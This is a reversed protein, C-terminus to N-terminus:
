MLTTPRVRSASPAVIPCVEASNDAGGGLDTHQSRAGQANPRGTVAGTVTGGVVSLPMIPCSASVHAGQVSQSIRKQSLSAFESSAPRLSMVPKPGEQLLTQNIVTTIWWGANAIHLPTMQRAANSCLLGAGARYVVHCSATTSCIVDHYCSTGLTVGVEDFVFCLCKVFDCWRCLLAM